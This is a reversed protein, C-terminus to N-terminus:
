GLQSQILRYRLQTKLVRADYTNDIRGGYIADEM